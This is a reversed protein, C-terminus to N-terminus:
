EETHGCAPCTKPQGPGKTVYEVKCKTCKHHGAWPVLRGSADKRAYAEKSYYRMAVAETTPPVDPLWEAQIGQTMLRVLEQGVDHAREEDCELVFEDHVYMVIRAGFLPSSPESYCAKSILWGATGTADAGLGQFFSNCAATYTAGGRIRDSFLQKLWYLKKGGSM